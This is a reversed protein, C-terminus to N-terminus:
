AVHGARHGRTQCVRIGRRTAAAQEWAWAWPQGRPGLLESHSAEEGYTHIGQLHQMQQM